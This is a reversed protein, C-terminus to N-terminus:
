SPEKDSPASDSPSSTMPASPDVTAEPTGPSWGPGPPAPSDGPVPVTPHPDPGPRASSAPPQDQAVGRGPQGPTGGDAAGAADGGTATAVMDGWMPGLLLPETFMDVSARGFREYVDRDFLHTGGLLRAIHDGLLTAGAGYGVLLAATADIDDVARMTGEAAGLVLTQRTMEVMGDIIHEAVRGGHRLCMAIYDTIPAFEPHGELYGALSVVSTQMLILGKEQALLNTIWDDCAERLGEKSTFHYNVLGVTVGAEAAIERLTTREWGRRSVLAIAAERIRASGRLDDVSSM